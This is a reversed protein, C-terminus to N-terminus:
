GIKAELEEIAQRKNETYANIYCAGTFEWNCAKLYKELSECQRNLAVEKEDIKIDYSDRYGSELEYSKDILKQREAEIALYGDVRDRVRNILKQKTFYDM